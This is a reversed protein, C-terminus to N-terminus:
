NKLSKLRNWDVNLISKFAFTKGTGPAGIVLIKPNHFNVLSLLLGFDQEIEGTGGTKNFAYDLVSQPARVQRDVSPIIQWKWATKGGQLKYIKTYIVLDFYGYIQNRFDGQINVDIVDDDAKHSAKEHVTVIVPIDAAALHQYFKVAGNALKEWTSQNGALAKGLLEQKHGQYLGSATDLCICDAVDFPPKIQFIESEQNVSVGNMNITESVQKLTGITALNKMAVSYKAGTFPPFGFMSQVEQPNGISTIGSARFDTNFFIVDPFASKVVQKGQSELEQAKAQAQQKDYFANQVGDHTIIYRL